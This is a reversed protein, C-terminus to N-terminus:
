KKALPAPLSYKEHWAGPAKYNAARRAKAEKRRTLDRLSSRGFMNHLAQDRILQTFATDDATGQLGLRRPSHLRAPGFWARKQNPSSYGQKASITDRPASFRPRSSRTAKQRKEHTKSDPFGAIIRAYTRKRNM